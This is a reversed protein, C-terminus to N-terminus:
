VARHAPRPGTPTGHREGGLRHPHPQLRQAPLNRHGAPQAGRDPFAAPAPPGDHILGGACGCRDARPDALHPRLGKGAALRLR